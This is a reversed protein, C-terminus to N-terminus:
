RLNYNDTGTQNDDFIDTSIGWIRMVLIRRGREGVWGRGNYYALLCASPLVPSPQTILLEPDPNLGEM